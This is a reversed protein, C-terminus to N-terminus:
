LGAPEPLYDSEELRAPSRRVCVGVGRQLSVCAAVLQCVRQRCAGIMSAPSRVSERACKRRVCPKHPRGRGCRCEPSHECKGCRCRHPACIRQLSARALRMFASIMGDLSVGYAEVEAGYMFISACRTRATRPEARSPESRRGAKAIVFAHMCTLYPLVLLFLLLLILLLM